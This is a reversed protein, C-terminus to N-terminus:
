GSKEIQRHKVINILDNQEDLSLADIIELIQNFPITQM